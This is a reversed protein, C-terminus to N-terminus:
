YTNVLFILMNISEVNYIQLTNVAARYFGTNQEKDPFAEAFAPLEQYCVFAALEFGWISSANQLRCAEM